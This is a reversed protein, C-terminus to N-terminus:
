HAVLVTDKGATDMRMVTTDSPATKMNTTDIIATDTMLSDLVKKKNRDSGCGAFALATLAIFIQIKLKMFTLFFNRDM